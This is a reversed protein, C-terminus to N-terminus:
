RAPTRSRPSPHAFAPARSTHRPPRWGSARLPRTRSRRPPPPAVARHPWAAAPNTPQGRVQDQVAVVHDPSEVAVPRGRGAVEVLRALEQYVISEPGSAPRPTPDDQDEVRM